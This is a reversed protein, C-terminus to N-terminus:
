HELIAMAGTHRAHSAISINIRRVGLRESEAKPRNHLVIICEGESGSQVEVERFIALDTVRTGLAKLVAEKAAFCAAYRLWPRRASNCYEIEAPTFIGEDPLWKGRAHEQEARGTNLIDMGLGVIATM